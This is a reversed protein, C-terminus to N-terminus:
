AVQKRLIEIHPVEKVAIDKKPICVMRMQGCIPCRDNLHIAITEVNMEEANCQCIIHKPYKGYLSKM